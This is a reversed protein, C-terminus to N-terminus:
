WTLRYHIITDSTGRAGLRTRGTETFDLENLLLILQENKSDTEVTVARINPTSQAIEIAQRLLSKEIGNERFNEPVQVTEIHLVRVGRKQTGRPPIHRFVYALKGCPQEGHLARLVRTEGKKKITITIRGTVEKKPQPTKKRKNGFVGPLLLQRISKRTKKRGHGDASRAPKRPKPAFRRAM